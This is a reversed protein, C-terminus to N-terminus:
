SVWIVNTLVSTRARLHDPDFKGNWVIKEVAQYFPTIIDKGKSARDETCSGGFPNQVMRV